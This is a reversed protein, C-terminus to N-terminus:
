EMIFNYTITGNQTGEGEINNFQTKYAADITASVLRSDNITTGKGRPKALLVKGTADVIIDVIIRGGRNTTNEPKHLEGVSSRGKLDHSVGNSSAGTGAPDAGPTGEQAGQRGEGETTGQSTNGGQRNGPFLANPDPRRPQEEVPPAAQEQEREPVVAPADELEQTMIDEPNMVPPTNTEATNDVPQPQAAAMNGGAQETDGFAILMGEGTERVKLSINVVLMLVVWLAIYAAAAIAGARKSGRENDDYYHM